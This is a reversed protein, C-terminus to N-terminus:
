SKACSSSIEHSARWAGRGLTEDGRDRAGGVVVEWDRVGVEM